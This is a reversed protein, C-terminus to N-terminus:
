PKKDETHENVKEHNSHYTETAEWGEYEPKNAM